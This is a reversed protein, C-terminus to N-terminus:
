VCRPNFTDPCITMQPGSEGSAQIIYALVRTKPDGCRGPAVTEKCNIGLQYRPRNRGKPDGVFPYSRSANVNGWIETVYRENNQGNDWGKYFFQEFPGDYAAPSNYAANLLTRADYVADKVDYVWSEGCKYAPFWDLGPFISRFTLDRQMIETVVKGGPPQVPSTAALNALALISILM